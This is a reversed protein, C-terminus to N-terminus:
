VTFKYETASFLCLLGIDDIILIIATGPWSYHLNSQNDHQSFRMRMGDLLTREKRETQHLENNKPGAM